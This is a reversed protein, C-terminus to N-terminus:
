SQINHRVPGSAPRKTGGDLLSRVAEGSKKTEDNMSARIHSTARSAATRDDSVTKATTASADSPEPAHMAPRGSIASSVINEDKRRPQRAHTRKDSLSAVATAAKDRETTIASYTVRLRDSTFMARMADDDGAVIGAIDDWSYGRARVDRLDPYLAEVHQWLANRRKQVAKYDSLRTRIADIDVTVEPKSM